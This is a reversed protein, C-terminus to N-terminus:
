ERAQQRADLDALNADGRFSVAAAARAPRDESLWRIYDYLSLIVPMRDHIDALLANADTTIIAL